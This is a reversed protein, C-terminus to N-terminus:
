KSPPPNKAGPQLLYIEYSSFKKVDGEAIKYQAPKINNKEFASVIAEKFLQMAGDTTTASKFLYIFGTGRNEPNKFDSSAIFQQVANKLELGNSFRGSIVLQSEDVLAASASASNSCSSPLGDLQVTATIFQAAASETAVLIRATGQGGVITGASVSWKYTVNTKLLKTVAIFIATDGATVEEAYPEVAIGPCNQAKALMIMFSLFVAVILKKM